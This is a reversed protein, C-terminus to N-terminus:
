VQPIGPEDNKCSATEQSSDNSFDISHHTPSFPDLDNANSKPDEEDEIASNTLKQILKLLKKEGLYIYTPYQRNESLNNVITAILIAVINGLLMLPLITWDYDNSAVLLSTAGAPPHIIGLKSILGITTATALSSRVWIPFAHKPIYSYLLSVCIAVTQGFLTNRPQSAPAMVLSYQLTMLAGFPGLLISYKGGSFNKIIESLGSIAVLSIFSGFFSLSSENFSMPPPPQLNGGSLKKRYLKLAHVLKNNRPTTIEEKEQKVTKLYDENSFKRHLTHRSKTLAVSAGIMTAANKLYSENEAATLKSKDKDDKTFYVIIGKQGAMDFRVGAIRAFGAKELVELRLFTPQDPDLNLTHIDRWILHHFNHDQGTLNKKTSLAALADVPQKKRWSRAMSLRSVTMSVENAFSPGSMSKRPKADMDSCLWLAGALGVGPAQPPPALYDDSDENVIREFSDEDDPIFNPNCWWAGNPRVLLPANPLMTYVEIADIGYADNGAYELCKSTRVRDNDVELKKTKKLSFRREKRSRVSSSLSPINSGLVKKM